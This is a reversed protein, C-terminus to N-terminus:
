GKKKKLNEKALLFSNPPVSNGEPIQALMSNSLLEKYIHLLFPLIEGQLFITQSYHPM